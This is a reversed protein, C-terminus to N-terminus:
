IYYYYEFSIILSIESHNVITMLNLLCKFQLMRNCITWGDTFSIAANLCGGYKNRMKWHPQCRHLKYPPLSDVYVLVMFKPMAKTWIRKPFTSVFAAMFWTGLLYLLMYAIGVAGFSSRVIRKQNMKIRLVRQLHLLHLRKRTGVFSSGNWIKHNELANWHQIADM